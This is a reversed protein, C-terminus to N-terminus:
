AHGSSVVEIDLHRFGDPGVGHDAVVEMTLGRELLIEAAHGMEALQIGGTGKPVLMTLIIPEGDLPSNATLWRKGFEPAVKPDATTSQYAKDTWRLGTLDPRAGAEWRDFQEDQKDLDPENLDIIDGYWVQKGFTAAGSKIARDVRVDSQLRSVAMTKDIEEVRKPVDALFDAETIVEGTEPNRYGGRLLTNTQQYELGEYESLARVSGHGPPADLAEGEYHGFHGEPARHLRAPAADLAAQGSLAHVLREAFGGGPHDTFKGNRPDRPHLEPKWDARARRKRGGHGAGPWRGFVDHYWQAAIRHAEDPNGVHKLIERYLATYPHPHDAWKALGKPDHTWYDHLQDHSPTNPLDARRPDRAYRGGPVGRRIKM